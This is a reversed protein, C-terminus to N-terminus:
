EDAPQRGPQFLRDPLEVSFDFYHSTRFENLPREDEGFEAYRIATPYWIGRPSERAEEVTTVYRFVTVREAGDVRYTARETQVALHSRAPDIWYRSASVTDPQGTERWITLLVTGAPGEAPRRDLEVELREGIVRTAEEPYALYLPPTSAPWEPAGRTEWRPAPWDAQKWTPSYRQVARIEEWDEPTAENSYELTGDSIEVPLHWLAKWRENWWRAQDADAAPPELPTGPEVIGYEMRSRRGSSWVVYALGRYWPDGPKNAVNLVRYPGFRAASRKIADILQQVDDGPALDVLKANRPVGLAYIDAPGQEPYSFLAEMRQPQPGDNAFATMSHPLRTAPDVRFTMRATEDDPGRLTLDYEVWPHGEDEIERRSQEVIEVGPLDMDLREEARFLQSFLRGMALFSQRSSERQEPSRYVTKERADYRFSVGRRHDEFSSDTGHREASVQRSFSFWAEVDEGDPTKGTLRIWPKGRVAEAVQAWSDAPRGLWPLVGLAALVTVAVALIGGRRLRRRAASAVPKRGGALQGAEARAAHLRLRLSAAFAERPPPAGYVQRLLEQIEDPAEPGAM